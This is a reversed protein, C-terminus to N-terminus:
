GHHSGETTTQDLLGGLGSAARGMATCFQTHSFPNPCRNAGRFPASGPRLGADRGIYSPHRSAALCLGGVLRMPNRPAVNDEEDGKVQFLWVLRRSPNQLSPTPPRGLTEDDLLPMAATDCPENCPLHSTFTSAQAGRQRWPYLSSLKSADSGRAEEEVPAPM